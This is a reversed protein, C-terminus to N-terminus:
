DIQSAMWEKYPRNLRRIDCAAIFPMSYSHNESILDEIEQMKNENTKVMLIVETQDKIEGEWRYISQVPWRLVCSALRRELILRGILKAEAEDKCTSYIYVM